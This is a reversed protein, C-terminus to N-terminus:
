GTLHTRPFVELTRVKLTPLAPPGRIPRKLEHVDITGTTTPRSFVGQPVGSSAEEAPLPRLRAAVTVDPNLTTNGDQPKEKQPKFRSVLTRYREAHELIYDDM